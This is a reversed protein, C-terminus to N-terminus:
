ENDSEIMNTDSNEKNSVEADPKRYEFRFIFGNGIVALLHRCDPSLGCARVPASVKIPAVHTMRKGDSTDYVYVDGTTNGVCIYAGDPTCGFRCRSAWGGGVTCSPVKWSSLQKWAAMDWVCMRGDVSKTALRNHCLFQMCDITETHRGSSSCEMNLQEREISGLAAQPKRDSSSPVPQQQRTAIQYSHLAGKKSGTVFFAGNPSVALCSADTNYSSMCLQQPVDWVRANGDKALSVVLGPKNACASMDVVDRTHGQLLAIVRAEVISIVSINHDAGAVAGGDAYETKQNTFKVVVAIFDGMHLDDYVTAQEHGVTAFLNQMGEDTYNFVLHHVPSCHSEKIVTKLKLHKLALQRHAAHGGAQEVDDKRNWLLSAEEANM